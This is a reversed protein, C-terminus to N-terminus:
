DSLGLWQLMRALMLKDHEMLIPRLELEEPSGPWWVERSLNRPYRAENGKGAWDFNVLFVKFGSMIFSTNRLDGLVLQADHLTQIVKEIQAVTDGTFPSAPGMYHGEIYDVVIM